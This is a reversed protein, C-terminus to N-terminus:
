VKCTLDNYRNRAYDRIYRDPDKINFFLFALLRNLGHYMPEQSLMKEKWIVQIKRKPFLKFILHIDDIDLHQLVKEILIDDPVMGNAPVIFSWFANEQHLKLTLNNKIYERSVPEEWLLDQLIRFGCDKLIKIQKELELKNELYRKKYARATSDKMGTHKYWGRRSLLLKLSQDTTLM